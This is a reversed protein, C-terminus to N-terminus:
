AMPQRDPWSGEFAYAAPGAMLVEGAGDWTLALEGGPVHVCVVDGTYGHLRAAVMTAAAATGCALTLGAGREWTRVILDDRSAVQCLSFNVRRPFLAHHEVRSGLAALDVAAVDSVFRVAHPNGLSVCTVEFDLDPLPVDIAPNAAVAVPIDPGNLIPKGLSVQLWDGAARARVALLGAGTEVTLESRGKFDGDLLYRGFCRIGNGCMEALSGDPNWVRMRADAVDSREVLLLGDAGVGFHRDSMARALAPWEAQCGNRGDILVFDNGAGQMKLFRMGPMSRLVPPTRLRLYWPPLSASIQEPSFRSDKFRLAWIRGAHLTDWLSREQTTRTWGQHHHGFGDLFGNWPPRFSIISSSEVLRIWVDEVVLFRYTFDELALFGAADQPNHAQVQRISEAHECLRNYLVPGAVQIAVGKRSGPAEAKGVYIPLVCGARNREALPLYYPSAGSYYIAYVGAGIFFPVQTLPRCEQAELERSISQSVVRPHLPNFPTVDLVQREPRGPTKRLM